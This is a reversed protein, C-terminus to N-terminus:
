LKDIIGNNKLIEFRTEMFDLMKGNHMDALTQPDDWDYWNKDCKECKRNEDSLYSFGWPFEKWQEESLKGPLNEQTFEPYEDDPNGSEIKFKHKLEELNSYDGNIISLGYLMGGNNYDTRSFYGVVFGVQSQCKKKGVFIMWVDKDKDWKIIDVYGNDNERLELGYEGAKQVLKECFDKRIKEKIKEGSHIINLTVDLLNEDSFLLNWLENQYKGEMIQRTNKIYTIYQKIVEHIRPCGKSINLCEDLWSLINPKNDSLDYSMPYYTIKNPGTSDESAERGSPTLYILIFKDKYEKKGFNHYRELQRPQEQAPNGYRDFKNEIIIAHGKEDYLFIDIEGGTSEGDKESIKVEGIYKDKYEIHSSNVDYQFDLKLKKKVMKLFAELFGKGVGHNADKDLLMRLFPTHLHEEPRTFHLNEFVNFYEGKAEREKKEAKSKQLIPQAEQLLQQIAKLDM